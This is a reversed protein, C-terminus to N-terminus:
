SYHKPLVTVISRNCIFISIQLRQSNTNTENIVAVLVCGFAAAPELHCANKVKAQAKDNGEYRYQFLNSALNRNNTNEEPCLM